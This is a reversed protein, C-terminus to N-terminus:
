ERAIFLKWPQKNWFCPKDLENISGDPCMFKYHQKKNQNEPQEFFQKFDRHTTLAVDGDVLCNLTTKFNNESEQCHGLSTYTKDIFCILM